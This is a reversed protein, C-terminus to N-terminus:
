VGAPAFPDVRDAYRTAELNKDMKQSESNSWLLMVLPGRLGGLLLALALLQEHARSRHVPVRSM